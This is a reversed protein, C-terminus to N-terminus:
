YRPMFCGGERARSVTLSDDSQDTSIVCVETGRHSDLGCTLLPVPTGGANCPQVHTCKAHTHTRAGSVIKIKKGLWPHGHQHM